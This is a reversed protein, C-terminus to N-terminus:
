SMLWESCGLLHGIEGSEDLLPFMAGHCLRGTEARTQYDLRFFTPQRSQAAADFIVHLEAVGPWDQRLQSLRIGSLDRGLEQLHRSGFLRWRYDNEGAPGAEHLIDLIVLHPLLAAGLRVPDLAARPPPPPDGLSEWVQETRFTLDFDGQDAAEARSLLAGAPNTTTLIMGGVGYAINQPVSMVMFKYMGSGTM